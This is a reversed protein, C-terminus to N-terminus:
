VRVVHFTLTFLSTVNMTVFLTHDPLRSSPTKNLYDSLLVEVQQRFHLDIFEPIKKKPHGIASVIPRVPM